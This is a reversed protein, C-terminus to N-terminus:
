IVNPDSLQLRYRYSVPIGELYVRFRRLSYIIALTELEFSHYNIEAPSTRRSYYSVPHWKGDTQRQLLVSGFGQSSADTHLETERRSNYISLLYFPPM